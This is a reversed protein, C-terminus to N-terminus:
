MLPSREKPWLDSNAALRVRDLFRSDVPLHLSAKILASRACQSHLFAVSSARSPFTSSASAHAVLPISTNFSLDTEVWNEKIPYRIVSTGHYRKVLAPYPDLVSVLIMQRLTLTSHTSAVTGACIGGANWLLLWSLLDIMGICDLGAQSSLWDRVQWNTM